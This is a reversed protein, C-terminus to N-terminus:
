FCPFRYITSSFYINFLHYVFFLYGMHAKMGCMGQAFNWSLFLSSFLLLLHCSFLYTSLYLYFDHQRCKMELHCEPHCERDFIIHYYNQTFSSAKSFHTKCKNTVDYRYISQDYFVFHINNKRTRTTKRSTTHLQHVALRWRSPPGEEEESQLQAHSRRLMQHLCGNRHGPRDRDVDRGM